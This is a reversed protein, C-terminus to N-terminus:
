GAVVVDGFQLQHTEQLEVTKVTLTIRKIKIEQGTRPESMTIVTASKLCQDDGRDFTLAYRKWPSKKEKTKM